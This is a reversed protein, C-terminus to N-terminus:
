TADGDKRYYHLFLDELSPPTCHLSLTDYQSLSQLAANLHASDVSFSVKNGDLALGHAGDIRIGAVSRACQAHVVLNSLQQLENLKGSEVIRGERIITIKDCLQQVEDLIHSSLFVTGGSAAIERVCAQFEAEMLPDLGSTPEDLLYLEVDSALAAILAIKQRNGKSYSRCKKSPDFQFREVLREKRKADVNKRMRCLLDIVEGGSLNPWPNVESPVYALRRHLAVCERYPDGGLLVVRGGDKQLLGLLIRITTSKGAGNMGIFGHVEGQSVTIDIGNLARTTGYSKTLGEIEIAHM